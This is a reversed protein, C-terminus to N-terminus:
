MYVRKIDKSAMDFMENLTNLDKIMEETVEEPRFAKLSRKFLVEPDKSKDGSLDYVKILMKAHNEISIKGGVNVSYAASVEAQRNDLEYILNVLVRKYESEVSINKTAYVCTWGSEVFTNDFISM